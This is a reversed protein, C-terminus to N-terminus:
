SVKVNRRGNCFSLTSMNKQSRIVCNTLEGVTHAVDEVSLGQSSISFMVRGMTMLVLEAASRQPAAGPM